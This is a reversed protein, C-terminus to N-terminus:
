PTASKVPKADFYIIGKGPVSVEWGVKRYEEFIGQIVPDDIPKLWSEYCHTKGNEMNMILAGNIYGIARERKTAERQKDYDEAMKIAAQPEIPIDSRGVGQLSKELKEVRELLTLPKTKVPSEDPTDGQGALLACLLLISSM